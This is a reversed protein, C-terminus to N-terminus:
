ALSPGKNRGPSVKRLSCMVTDEEAGFRRDVYVKPPRGKNDRTEEILLIRRGWEIRMRRSIEMAMPADWCCPLKQIRCKVRAAEMAWVWAWTSFIAMSPYPLRRSANPPHREQHPGYSPRCLNSNPDISVTLAMTLPRPGVDTRLDVDRMRCGTNSIRDHWM